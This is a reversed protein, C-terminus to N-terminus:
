ARLTPMSPMIGTFAGVLMMGEIGVNLVGARQAVTEGLAALLIPTGLRFASAVLGVWFIQDM